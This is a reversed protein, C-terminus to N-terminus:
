YSIGSCSHTTVEVCFLSKRENSCGDDVICRRSQVAVALAWRSVSVASQFVFGPLHTWQESHSTALELWDMERVQGLTHSLGCKPAVPEIENQGKNKSVQSNSPM